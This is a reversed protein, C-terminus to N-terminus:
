EAIAAAPSQRVSTAFGGRSRPTADAGVAGAGAFESWGVSFLFRFDFDRRCPAAVRFFAL